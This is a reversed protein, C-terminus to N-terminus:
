FAQSHNLLNLYCFYIYLLKVLSCCREHHKQLLWKKAPVLCWNSFGWTVGTKPEAMINMVSHITDYYPENFYIHTIQFLMCLVRDKKKKKYIESLRHCFTIPIRFLQYLFGGEGKKCPKSGIVSSSILKTSHTEVNDLFPLPPSVFYQGFLLKAWLKQWQNYSTVLKRTPARTQEM